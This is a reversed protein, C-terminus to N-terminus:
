RTAGSADDVSEVIEYLITGGAPAVVEIREGPRAGLAARGLPSEDSVRAVDGDEPVAVDAAPVIRVELVEGGAVDRLRFTVGERISDDEPEEDPRIVQARALTAAIEESRAEWRAKRDHAERVTIPDADCVRTRLERLSAEITRVEAQAAEREAELRAVDSPRLRPRM